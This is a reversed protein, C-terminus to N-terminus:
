AIMVYHYKIMLLGLEILHRPRGVNLVYQLWKWRFVMLFWEFASGIIFGILIGLWTNEKM